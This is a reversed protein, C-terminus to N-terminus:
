VLHTEEERVLGKEDLVHILRDYRAKLVNFEDHWTETRKLYRDVSTQLESFKDTLSSEVAALGDALDQKTVMVGRLKEAVASSIGEIDQKSIPSMRGTYCASPNQGSGMPGM